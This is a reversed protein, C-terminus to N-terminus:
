PRHDYGGSAQLPLLNRPCDGRDRVDQSVVTRVASRRQHIDANSLGWLRVATDHSVSVLMPAVPSLAVATVWGDHGQLTTLLDCENVRWVRITADRSGTVLREGDSSFAVSTVSNNHGELRTMLGGTAANWIGITNDQSGTAV